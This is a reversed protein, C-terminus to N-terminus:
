GGRQRCSNTFRELMRADTKIGGHTRFGISLYRLVLIDYNKTILDM